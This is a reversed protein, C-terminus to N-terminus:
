RGQAVYKVFDSEIDEPSAKKPGRGQQRGKSAAKGIASVKKGTKYSEMQADLDEPSPRETRNQRAPPRTSKESLIVRTTFTKGSTSPDFPNKVGTQM